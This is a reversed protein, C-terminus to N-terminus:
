NYVHCSYLTSQINDIMYINQDGNFAFAGIFCFDINKTNKNNDYYLNVFDTIYKPYIAYDTYREQPIINKEKCSEEYCLQLKPCWEYHLLYDNSTSKYM